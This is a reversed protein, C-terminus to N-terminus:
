FPPTLSTSATLKPRQRMCNFPEKRERRELSGHKLPERPVGKSKAPSGGCLFLNKKGEKHKQLSREEWCINSGIFFSESYFHIKEVM